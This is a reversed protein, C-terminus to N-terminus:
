LITYGQCSTYFCTGRRCMPCKTMSSSQKLWTDLCHQVDHILTTPWTFLCFLLPLNPRVEHFTHGCTGSELRIDSNTIQLYCKVFASHRKQHPKIRLTRFHSESLLCGDGPFTCSPCAAEFPIHCIGCVDDPDVGDWRWAVVATWEIIEVKM